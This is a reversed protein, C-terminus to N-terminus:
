CRGDMGDRTLCEAWEQLSILQDGDVDCSRPFNKACRKPKVAKKAVKRLDKYEMKDLIDDGNQDLMQFKWTIVVTDTDNKGSDLRYCM